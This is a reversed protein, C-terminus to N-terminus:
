WLELSRNPDKNMRVVRRIIGEAKYPLPSNGGFGHSFDM